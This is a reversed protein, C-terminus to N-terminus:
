VNSNEKPFFYSRIADEPAVWDDPKIADAADGTARSEKQGRKKSMNANHVLEFVRVADERGLGLKHLGGIAFYITDILADVCGIFDANDHAEQLEIAEEHLCKVLHTGVDKPMPGLPPRELGLIEENFNQVLYYSYHM